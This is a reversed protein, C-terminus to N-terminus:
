TSPGDGKNIMEKAKKKTNKIDVKGPTGDARPDIRAVTGLRLEISGDENKKGTIIQSPEYPRTLQRIRTAWSVSNNAVRTM